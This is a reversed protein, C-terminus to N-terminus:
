KYVEVTYRVHIELLFPLHESCKFHPLPTENKFAYSYNKVKLVM